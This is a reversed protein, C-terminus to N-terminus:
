RVENGTSSRQGPMRRRREPLDRRGENSADRSEARRHRADPRRHVATLDAQPRPRRPSRIAWHPASDRRDVHRPASRPSPPCEGPSWCSSREPLQRRSHFVGVDSGNCITVGADLAARLSARKRPSPSATGPRHRSAVRPIHRDRVVSRCHASRSTTRSGHVPLDGADRRRRARDDRRRRRNARRERRRHDRAHLVARGSSRADRRRPWGVEELVDPRQQNNPRGDTDRLAEIWRRRPRDRACPRRSRPAM